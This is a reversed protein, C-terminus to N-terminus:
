ALITLLYISPAFPVALFTDQLLPYKEFHIEKAIAVKGMELRM